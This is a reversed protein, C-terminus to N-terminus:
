IRLDHRGGRDAQEVPNVDVTRDAQEPNPGVHRGRVIAQSRTAGSAPRPTSKAAGTRRNHSAALLLLSRILASNNCRAKADVAPTSALTSAPWIASGVGHWDHSTRASTFWM